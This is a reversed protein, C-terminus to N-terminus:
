EHSNQTKLEGCKNEVDYTQPNPYFSRTVPDLLEKVSEEFEGTSFKINVNRYEILLPKYCIDSGSTKLTLLPEGSRNHNGALTFYPYQVRNDVSFLSVDDDAHWAQATLLPLSYVDFDFITSVPSTWLPADIDHLLQLSGRTEGANFRLDRLFSIPANSGHPYHLSFHYLPTPLTSVDNIYHVATGYSGTGRDDYYHSVAIDNGHLREVLIISDFRRDNLRFSKNVIPFSPYGTIKDFVLLVSYDLNNDYATVVVYNETCTIDCPKYYEEKQYLARGQWNTGDFWIDFACHHLSTGYYLSHELEGVIALHVYGGDKFVDMRDCTAIYATPPCPAINLQFHTALNYPGNNYFLDQVSIQGVFGWPTTSQPFVGCFFVMDEFVEFDKLELYSPFEAVIVSSPNGLNYLVFYHSVGDNCYYISQNPTYQRSVANKLPPLGTLTVIDQARVFEALSLTLALYFLFQKKM